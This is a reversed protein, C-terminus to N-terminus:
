CNQCSPMCRLIRGQKWSCRGIGAIPQTDHGEILNSYYSNAPRLFDAIATATVSHLSGSLRAAAEVVQLALERLEPPLPSPKLPAIAAPNRYLDM